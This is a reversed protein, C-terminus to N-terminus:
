TDSTVPDTYVFTPVLQDSVNHELWLEKVSAAAPGFQQDVAADLIPLTYKYLVNFPSTDSSAQTCRYRPQHLGYLVRFGSILEAVM